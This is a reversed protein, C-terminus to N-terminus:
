KAGIKDLAAGVKTEIEKKDLINTIGVVEKKIGENKLDDAVDSLTVVIPGDFSDLEDLSSHEVEMDWGQEDIVQNLKIKLMLSSGVGARCAVLAKVM